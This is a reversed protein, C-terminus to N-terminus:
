LWTGCFCLESNRASSLRLGMLNVNRIWGFGFVLFKWSDCGFVQVGSAHARNAAYGSL